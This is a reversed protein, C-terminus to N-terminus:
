GLRGWTQGVRTGLRELDAPRRATHLGHIGWQAQEHASLSSRYGVGVVPGGTGHLAAAGALPVADTLDPSHWFPTAVIVLDAREAAARLDTFEALLDGTPYARAGLAMLWAAAGGGAGAGERLGPDEPASSLLDRPSSASALERLHNRWGKPEPADRRLQLDPTMMATGGPGFLSRSTSYALLIETARLKAALEEGDTAGVRKGWDHGEDHGMEILVPSQETLDIQQAGKRPLSIAGRSALAEAFVEGAGFPLISIEASQAAKKFGEAFPELGWSDAQRDGEWLHEADDSFGLAVDEVPTFHGLLLVRM